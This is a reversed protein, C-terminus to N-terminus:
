KNITDRSLLSLHLWNSSSKVLGTKSSLNFIIEKDILFVNRVIQRVKQCFCVAWVKEERKKKSLLAACKQTGRSVRSGSM